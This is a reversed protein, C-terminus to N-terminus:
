NDWSFEADEAEAPPLAQWVARYVPSAPALLEEIAQRVELSDPLPENVRRPAEVLKELDLGEDQGRNAAYLLVPDPSIWREELSRLASWLGPNDVTWVKDESVSAQFGEVELPDSPLQVSLPAPFPDYVLHSLEDPSHDEGEPIMLVALVGGMADDVKDVMQQELASLEQRPGSSGEDIADGLLAQFCAEAGDPNDDLWRYLEATAALYEAIFPTWEDLTGEVDKRQRRTAQSPVGPVIVLEARGDEAIEYTVSISTDSFLDGLSRPEAILASRRAEALTGLRKEWSLREAAPKISDFRRAWPDLGDLLDRRLDSMRRELAPNSAGDKLLDLEVTDTVAVAGNPFFRLRVSEKVPPDFCGALLLLGCALALRRARPIM